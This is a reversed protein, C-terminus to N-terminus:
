AGVCNTVTWAPCEVDLIILDPRESQALMLADAGSEAPTVAYSDGLTKTFIDHMFSEDDVILIKTQKNM